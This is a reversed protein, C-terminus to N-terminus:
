YFACQKYLQLVFSARELEIEHFNPRNINEKM